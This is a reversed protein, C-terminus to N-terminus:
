RRLALSAGYINAAVFLVVGAWFPLILLDQPARGIGIMASAIIVLTLRWYPLDRYRVENRDGFAGFIMKWRDFLAWDLFVGGCITAALLGTLHLSESM